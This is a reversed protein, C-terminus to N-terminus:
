SGSFLYSMDSDAWTFAADVQDREFHLFVNTINMPFGRTLIHSKDSAEEYCWCQFGKFSCPPLENNFPEDFIYDFQGEADNGIDVENEDASQCYCYYDAVCLFYARFNM